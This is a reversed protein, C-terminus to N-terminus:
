YRKIDKIYITVYSAVTYGSAFSSNSTFRNNYNLLHWTNENEVTIAGDLSSNEIYKKYENISLIRVLISKENPINTANNYNIISLLANKVNSDNTDYGNSIILNLLDNKISM